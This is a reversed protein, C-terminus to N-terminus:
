NRSVLEQIQCSGFSMSYLAFGNSRTSLRLKHEGFEKARVLSYMRGGDVLFFSRGEEDISVDSGKIEPTLYADDQQVFVQFKKEGEPKIVACVEVAQYVITLSGERGEHEELQIYNRSSFWDGHLYVRGGIYIGPDEFHLTSEPVLGEVNGITGRQWGALIAPTAKQSYGGSRDSERLPDMVLPFEAHYGAEAILSQLAHEFNQYSGEGAHVYRIFGNKDILYKCPWQQNRFASWVLYENDMVVPYRIGLRDIAKRVNMADRAFPFEPTHVGILILGKETYRSYWERLYPLTQLWKYSTYDWFDVLIVYGRMAGLTIPDSNFWFDGYVEPTRFQQPLMEM